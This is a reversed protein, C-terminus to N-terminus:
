KLTRSFRLSAISTGTHFCLPRRIEKTAVENQQRKNKKEKKV